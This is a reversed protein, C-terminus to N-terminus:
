GGSAVEKEYDKKLKDFHNYLDLTFDWDAMKLDLATIFEMVEQRTNSRVLDNILQDRDLNITVDISM